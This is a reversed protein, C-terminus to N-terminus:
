LGMQKKIYAQVQPDDQLGMKAAVDAIDTVTMKEVRGYTVRPSFTEGDPFNARVFRSLFGTLPEAIYDRAIQTFPRWEDQAASNRAAFSGHKLLGIFSSEASLAMAVDLKNRNISPTFDSTASQPSLMQMDWDQPLMLWPVHKAEYNSLHTKVQDQMEKNAGAEGMKVVMTGLGNVQRARSEISTDNRLMKISQYSSRLHSRGEPNKGMQRATVLLMKDAGLAVRSPGVEGNLNSQQSNRLIVGVIDDRQQIWRDVSWPARWLPLSPVWYIRPVPDGVLQWLVPEAVVEWLSFGMLPTTRLNWSTWLSLDYETEPRTWAHWVRQCYEWQQAMRLRNNETDLWSPITPPTLGIPAGQVAGVMKEIATEVTPTNLLEYFVGPDRGFGRAWLPYLQPNQEIIIRGSAWPMGDWAVEKSLDVEYEVGQVVVDTTFDNRGLRHIKGLKRRMRAPAELKRPPRKSDREVM